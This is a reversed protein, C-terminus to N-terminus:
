LDQLTRFIDLLGAGQCEPRRNLSTANKMLRAKIERPNGIYEKRSSLILAAAGSVHPAAMSTGSSDRYYVIKPDVVFDPDHFDLQKSRALWGAAACSVIREGPALLDPKNRGDATPGRSSFYSVGYTHPAEAHTSGVTIALDSNGPDTISQSLGVLAQGQSAGAVSAFGSGYNGAAVVVVVGMNVLRDVAVCVPSQGAGYWAPDFDISLSLNVGHIRLRRGDDNALAVYDLAALVASEFNGGSAEEDTMVKLSLLQCRPAVGKLVGPLAEEWVEVTRQVSRQVLRKARPPDGIPADPDPTSGAIIGAVHTGHGSEDVLPSTAVTDTFNIHRLGCTGDPSPPDHTTELGDPALTAFEHFHPHMEDIGSDIVAWIIGKGDAGFTRICADAKITPISRDLVPSVRRDQWIKHIAPTYTRVSADAPREDLALLDDIQQDTLKAFAYHRTGRIPRSRDAKVTDLMREVMMRAATRGGVYDLNLEIIVDQGFTGASMQPAVVFPAYRANIGFDPPKGDPGAQNVGPESAAM